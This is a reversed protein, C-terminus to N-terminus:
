PSHNLIEWCLSALTTARFNATRPCANDHLLIIGESLKESRKKRIVAHADNLFFNSYYQANITASSNRRKGFDAGWRSLHECRIATLLVHGPGKGTNHVEGTPFKLRNWKTQDCIQHWLATICKAYCLGVGNQAAELALLRLTNSYTHSHSCHQWWRGRFKMM